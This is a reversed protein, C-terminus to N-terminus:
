EICPCMSVVDQLGTHSQVHDKSGWINVVSSVLVRGGGEMTNVEPNVEQFAIRCGETWSAGDLLTDPKSKRDPRSTAEM